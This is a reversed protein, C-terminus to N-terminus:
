YTIRVRGSRIGLMDIVEGVEMGFFAKPTYETLNRRLLIKPRIADLTQMARYKVHLWGMYALEALTYAM